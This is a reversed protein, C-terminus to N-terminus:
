RRDFEHEDGRDDRQAAAGISIRPSGAREDCGSFLACAHNFAADLRILLLQGFVLPAALLPSGKAAILDEAKEDDRVCDEDPRGEVGVRV